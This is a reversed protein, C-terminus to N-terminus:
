SSTPLFSAALCPQEALCPPEERPIEKVAIHIDGMPPLKHQKICLDCGAPVSVTIYVLVAEPRPTDSDLSLQDTCVFSLILLATPCCFTHRAAPTPHGQTPCVPPHCQSLSHPVLSSCFPPEPGMPQICALPSLPYCPHTPMQTQAPLSLPVSSISQSYAPLIAEVGFTTHFISFGSLTWGATSQKDEERAFHVCFCSLSWAATLLLVEAAKGRDRSHQLCGQWSLSNDSPEESPCFAVLMVMSAHQLQRHERHEARGHQCCPM